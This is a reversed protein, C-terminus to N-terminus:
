PCALLQPVCFTRSLQLEASIARGGLQPMQGHSFAAGPCGPGSPFLLQQVAISCYGIVTGNVCQMHAYTRACANMWVHMEYQQFACKTTRVPRTTVNM